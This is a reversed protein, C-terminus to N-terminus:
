DNRKLQLPIGCDYDEFVFKSDVYDSEAVVEVKRVSDEPGAEVSSQRSAWFVSTLKRCNKLMYLANFHWQFMGKLKNSYDERRMVM